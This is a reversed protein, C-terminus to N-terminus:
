EFLWVSVRNKLKGQYKIFGHIPFTRPIKLEFHGNQDTRVELDKIIHFYINGSNSKIRKQIPKVIVNTLPKGGEEMLFGTFTISDVDHIISVLFGGIEYAGLVLGVSQYSSFGNRKLDGNIINYNSFDVKPYISYSCGMLFLLSFRAIHLLLCNKM